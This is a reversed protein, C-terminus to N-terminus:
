LDRGTRLTEKFRDLTLGAPLGEANPTLNRSTVFPPAPPPPFPMGGGLFGAVNIREPQGLFPDGGAAYPPNTHCDNCGSTNVIYSGTRVKAPNLGKTNLPVPNIDDGNQVQSSGQAAVSATHVSVLVVASCLAAAGLIFSRMQGGQHPKAASYM